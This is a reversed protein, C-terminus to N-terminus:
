QSTMKKSVVLGLKNFELSCGRNGDSSGVGCTHKTSVFEVIVLHEVRISLLAEDILLSDFWDDQTDHLSEIACDKGISLSATSLCM